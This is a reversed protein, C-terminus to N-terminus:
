IRRKKFYLNCLKSTNTKKQFYFVWFGWSLFVCLDLHTVNHEVFGVWDSAYLWAVHKELLTNFYMTTCSKSNWLDLPWKKSWFQLNFILQMFFFEKSQNIIIILTLLQNLIFKWRVYQGMKWTWQLFNLILKEGHWTHYVNNNCGVGRGVWYLTLTFSSTPDLFLSLQLHLVKTAREGKGFPFYNM